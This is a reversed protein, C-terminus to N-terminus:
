GDLLDLLVPYVTDIQQRRQAPDMLDHILGLERPFHHQRVNAGRARWRQVLREVPPLTVAEDAGNTVVVIRRALPARWRAEFLVRLGLRVIAGLARTAFRPYCHAPSDRTDKRVPDWWRFYNPLVRALLALPLTAQPHISPAGFVPAIVVALAVDARRQAAYAALVGGASLGAVTVQEGLGHAIALGEDLARLLLSATIRAQDPSMRDALGHHPLRPVYVNQGRAHLLAAFRRLQQPCNTYGHILLAVRAVPEGHTLAFGRCVPNLRPNEEARAIAAIRAMAQEYSHKSV